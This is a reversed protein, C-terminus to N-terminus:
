MKHEDDVLDPRCIESTLIQCNYLFLVHFMLEGIYVILWGIV